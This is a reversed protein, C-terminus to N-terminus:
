QLNNRARILQYGEMIPGDVFNEIQSGPWSDRVSYHRHGDKRTIHTDVYHYVTIIKTSFDALM